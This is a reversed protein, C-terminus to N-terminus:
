ERLFRIKGNGDCDCRHYNDMLPNFCIAAWGGNDARALQCWDPPEGLQSNGTNYGGRSLCAFTLAEIMPPQIIGSPSDPSLYKAPTWRYRCYQKQWQRFEQWRQSDLDWQLARRYYDAFEQWTHWIGLSTATDFWNRRPQQQKFFRPPTLNQPDTRPPLWIARSFGSNWHWDPRTQITQDIRHFNRMLNGRIQGSITQQQRQNIYSNPPLSTPPKHGYDTANYALRAHEIGNSVYYIIDGEKRRDPRNIIKVMRSYYVLPM